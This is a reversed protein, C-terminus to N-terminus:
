GEREKFLDDFSRIKGDEIVQEKQEEKVEVPTTFFRDHYRKRWASDNEEYRSKWDEGAKSEYDGLTDSFDEIIELSEDSDDLLNKLSAMLEERTRVAM